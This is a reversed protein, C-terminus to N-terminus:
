DFIVKVNCAGFFVSNPTRQLFKLILYVDTFILLSFDLITM